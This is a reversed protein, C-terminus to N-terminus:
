CIIPELFTQLMEMCFGTTMMEPMKPLGTLLETVQPAPDKPFPSKSTDLVKAQSFREDFVPLAPTM